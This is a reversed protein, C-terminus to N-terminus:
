AKVPRYIATDIPNLFWKVGNLNYYNAVILLKKLFECAPSKNAKSPVFRKETMKGSIQLEKMFDEVDVDVPLGQTVIKFNEPEQIVDALYELWEYVDYENATMCVKGKIEGRRSIEQAKTRTMERKNQDFVKFKSNKLTVHNPYEL